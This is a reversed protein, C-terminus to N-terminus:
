IKVFRLKIFLTILLAFWRYESTLVFYFVRYFAYKM